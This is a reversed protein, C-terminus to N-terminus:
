KGIKGLETVKTLTGQELDYSVQFLYHPVNNTMTGAKVTYDCDVLAVISGGSQKQNYVNVQNLQSQIVGYDSSQNDASLPFLQQAVESTVSNKVTAQRAKNTVKNQEYSYYTTFLQKCKSQLQLVQEEEQGTKSQKLANEASNLQETLNSIKSQDKKQIESSSALQQPNKQSRIPFISFIIAMIIVGCLVGTGLVIIKQKNKM